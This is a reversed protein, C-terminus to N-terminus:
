KYYKETTPLEVSIPTVDAKCGVTVDVVSGGHGRKVFLIPFHM